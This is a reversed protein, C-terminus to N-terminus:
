ILFHLRKRAESSEDVMAEAGTQISRMCDGREDFSFALM